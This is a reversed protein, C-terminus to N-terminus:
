LSALKHTSTSSSEVPPDFALEATRSGGAPPNLPSSSSCSSKQKKSAFVQGAACCAASLSGAPQVNSRAQVFPAVAEATPATFYVTGRDRAESRWGPPEPSFFSPASVDSPTCSTHEAAHVTTRRAGSREHNQHASAAGAALRTPRWWSARLERDM